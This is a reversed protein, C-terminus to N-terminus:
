YKNTQTLNFTFIAAYVTFGDHGFVKTLLSLHLQARWCFWVFVQHAIATAAALWLWVTSSLGGFSGARISDADSVALLAAILVALLLAHLWQKEFILGTLRM